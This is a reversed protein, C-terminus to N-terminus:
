VITFETIQLGYFVPAMNVIHRAPQLERPLSQRFFSLALQLVATAEENRRSERFNQKRLFRFAFM